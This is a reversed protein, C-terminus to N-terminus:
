EDMAKKITDCIIKEKLPIDETTQSISQHLKYLKDLQPKLKNIDKPFPIICNNLREKTIHGLVSGNFM